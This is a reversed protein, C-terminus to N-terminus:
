TPSFLALLRTSDGAADFRAQLEPLRATDLTVLPRQSGPGSSPALARYAFYGAVLAVAFVTLLLLIPKRLKAM